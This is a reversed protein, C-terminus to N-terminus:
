IYKHRHIHVICVCMRRTHHIYTHTYLCTVTYIRVDIRTHLQTHEEFLAIYVDGQGQIKKHLTNNIM